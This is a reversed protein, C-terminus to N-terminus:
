QYNTEVSLYVLMGGSEWARDYVLPLGIGPVVQVNGLRMSFRVAPNFILQMRKEISGNQQFEQEFLAVYELLLNAGPAPHWVFSVGANKQFLNKKYIVKEGDAASGYYKSKIFETAGLNYHTVVKRSLRKTMALNGQVGVAGNGFGLVSSGTPLIISLRPIVMIWDNEDMVQYRYGLSLDGFGHTSMPNSGRQLYNLTYSFQHKKDTIPIEQTFSFDIEGNRKMWFTSIYQIVGMGQNFAEELFVSNDELTMPGYSAYSGKKLSSQAKTMGTLSVLVFILAIRIM